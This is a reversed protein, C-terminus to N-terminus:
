VHLQNVCFEDIFMSAEHVDKEIEKFHIAYKSKAEEALQMSSFVGLLANDDYNAFWLVFVTM